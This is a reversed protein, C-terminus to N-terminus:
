WSTKTWLQNGNTNSVDNMTITVSGKTDDTLAGYYVKGQWTSAITFKYYTKGGVVVTSSIWKFDTATITALGIIQTYWTPSCMSQGNCYYGPGKALLYYGYDKDRITGATSFCFSSRTKTDTLINESTPLGTNQNWGAVQYKLNAPKAAKSTLSYSDTCFPGKQAKAKRNKLSTADSFSLIAM